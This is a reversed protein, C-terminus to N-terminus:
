PTFGDNAGLGLLAALRQKVTALIAPPAKCIFRFGGHRRDLSRIQDVLIAGRIAM